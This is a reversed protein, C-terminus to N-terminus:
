DEELWHKKRRRSPLEVRPKLELLVKRALRRKPRELETVEQPPPQEPPGAYALKESVGHELWEVTVGAARLMRRHNPPCERRDHDTVVRGVLLYNTPQRPHKLWVARKPGFAHLPYQQLRVEKKTVEQVRFQQAYWGRTKDHCYWGRTRDPHHIDPREVFEVAYVDDGKKLERATLWTGLPPPARRRAM